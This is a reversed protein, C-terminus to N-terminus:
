QFLLKSVKNSSLITMAKLLPNKKFFVGRSSNGVYMKLIHFDVKCQDDDKNLLSNVEISFTDSQELFNKLLWKKQHNFQDHVM